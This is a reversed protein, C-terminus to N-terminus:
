NNNKPLNSAVLGTHIKIDESGQLIQSAVENTTQLEWVPMTNEKIKTVANLATVAHKLIRRAQIIVLILLTAAAIILITAIILWFHWKDFLLVDDM